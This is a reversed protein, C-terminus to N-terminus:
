WRDSNRVHLTQANIRGSYDSALFLGAGAVEEPEMAIALAIAEGIGRGGGTIIAVKDKLMMPQM